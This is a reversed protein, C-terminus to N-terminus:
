DRGSMGVHHELEDAFSAKRLAQLCEGSLKCDVLADQEGPSHPRRLDRLPKPRGIDEHERAV